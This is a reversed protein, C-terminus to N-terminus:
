WRGDLRDWNRRDRERRRRARLGMAFVVATALLLFGQIADHNDWFWKMM